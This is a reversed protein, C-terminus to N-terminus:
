SEVIDAIKELSPRDRLLLGGRSLDILGDAKWTALTKSVAERSAGVFEALDSQSMALKETQVLGADTLHLIKRALRAPLPLFVQESLQSGMWRLRKGALQIMDIHLSPTEHLAQLVDANRIAMVSTPELATLTATRPGPDFLCIEGFVAGQHLVHLSLKRGDSSIVSVELTGSVMAYLTEGQEGEEFLVEGKKLDKQVALETM